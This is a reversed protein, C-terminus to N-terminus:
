KVVFDYQQSNKQLSIIMGTAGDVAVPTGTTNEFLTANVGASYLSKKEKFTVGNKTAYEVQNCGVTSYKGNEVIVGFTCSASSNVGDLANNKQAMILSEVKRAELQLYLSDKQRSDVVVLLVATMIAIIALTILIELLSFGKQKKRM